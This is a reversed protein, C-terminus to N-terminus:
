NEIFHKLENFFQLRNEIFSMHGDPFELIRVKTRVAEAILDEYKLVPDKKSILMWKKFNFNDLIESRDKRTKMGELAAIIGQLPTKLAETTIKQIAEYHEDKKEPNFLNGIAIRVFTKHGHKVAEIARDRNLKREPSDESATSNVLFIGKTKKPYKEAFALAVYGGMSHGVLTCINIELHELVANVSEAMLEMTHIYGLCGTQGHGLLDICIIRNKESLKKIFSQWITTNELFGHLLVVTNGRGTDTYFIQTSRYELIM